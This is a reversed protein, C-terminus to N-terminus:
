EVVYIVPLVAESVDEALTRLSVADEPFIEFKRGSWIVLALRVEEDVTTPLVPAVRVTVKTGLFMILVVPDKTKTNGNLHQVLKWINSTSLGIHVPTVVRFVERM